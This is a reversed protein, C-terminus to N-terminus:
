RKILLGIIIAAAAAVSAAYLAALVFREFKRERNRRVLDLEDAMDFYSRRYLRRTGVHWGWAGGLVAMLMVAVSGFGVM